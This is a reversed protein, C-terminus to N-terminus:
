LPSQPRWIRKISMPATKERSGPHSVARALVVGFGTLAIIVGLGILAAHTKFKTRM